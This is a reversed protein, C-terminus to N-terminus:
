CAPACSTPPTAGPWATTSSTANLSPLYLMAVVGIFQLVVVAALWTKYPALRERLLRLLM